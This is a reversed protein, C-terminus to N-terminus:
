CFFYTSDRVTELDLTEKILGDPVDAGQKKAWECLIPNNYLEIFKDRILVGLENHDCSRALVCDHIVTFPREWEAFTMHLLCADASHVLNPASASVHHKLDPEKDGVALSTKLVSGMLQTEVRIIDAKRLNQVVTFGSPVMWTLHDRGSRIAQDAVKQIFEMCEVPGPFVKRIAHDYVASTIEGLAGPISLDRGDKHLQDRIYGRASHRSLGYPLCMTPRKTVKRSMWEQLEPRLKEKAKESVALYGDSPKPTPTVNVMEAAAQDLTLASLHQIGSATADVGVPLGSTTKTKSICCAEYEIAAACFTWPEEAAEWLPISGIPDAAIAQIMELNNRTWDVRDQMSAKDLGYATACAFALWFEDVPGEEYFYFLSKDFDTGQITVGSNQIPYMRGRYDFNWCLWLLEGAYKNAVFLTETTRYNRQSLGANYDHISTAEHKYSWIEDATAGESPKEPLPMLDEARFSGVSIRQAQCHNALELITPHIRYTVRQLNNLTALAKTGECFPQNLRYDKVRVLKHRNKLENMIFGGSYDLKGSWDNPPCLMPWACYAVQSAMELIADVHELFEPEFQVLVQCRHKSRRVTKASAWGTATCFVDLLWAGVRHRAKAPWTKWKIGKKNMTLKFRTAKQRTGTTHRFEKVINTFLGRNVRELYDIRLQEQVCEGIQMCLKTHEPVRDKGFRDLCCKITILALVDPDGDKIMDLYIANFGAQGSSLKGYRDKILAAMPEIAKKTLAQGYVTSSAYTKDEARRTREKLRSVAERHMETELSLERIMLEQLEM